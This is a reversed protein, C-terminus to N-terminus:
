CGKAKYEYSRNHNECCCFYYVLAQQASHATIGLHCIHWHTDSSRRYYIYFLVM